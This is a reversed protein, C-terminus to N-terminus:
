KRSNVESAGVTDQVRPLNMNYTKIDAQKKLNQFWENLGDYKKRRKVKEFYSNKVKAYDAENAPRKELVQFVGYGKYIPAPPHIDGKNMAMMKYVADKPFRWIDMLFETSVFGPRRFDKPRKKKEADWFGRKAKAQKYFDQAEKETAFEALEVSLSNYENLFKQHAEEDTVKPEIGKMVQQRLKEVQVMHRIQNKFLTVPEGVKEKVWKELAAPDKKWDFSVKEQQLIKGLEQDIEVQTVNVNLLFAEYSLLLEDWTRDETEKSGEPMRVGNSGFVLLVSKVFYYNEQPVKVGLFEGMYQPEAQAQKKGSVCGPLSWLFLFLFIVLQRINVKM